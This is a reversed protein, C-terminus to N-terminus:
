WDDGPKLAEQMMMRKLEFAKTEEDKMADLIQQAEEPSMPHTNQQQQNQQNNQNQQENQPQQKQTDQKDQQQDQKKQQQEDQKDNQDNQQEQQEQQQQQKKQRIALELNKRYDISTQDLTIAQRYQEIATDPNGSIAHTNGMNFHAAAQNEPTTFETASREFEPIAENANGASSLATGRNFRLEPSDPREVLADTFAQVSEQADGKNYLEIGQKNLRSAKDAFASCPTILALFILLTAVNWITKYTDNRM